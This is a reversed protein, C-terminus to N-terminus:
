KKGGLRCKECYAYVDTKIWSDNRCAPCKEINDHLLGADFFGTGQVLKGVTIRKSKQYELAPQIEVLENFNRLKLVDIMDYQGLTLYEALESWSVFRAGYFLAYLWDKLNFVDIPMWEQPTIKEGKANYVEANNTFIAMPHLKENLGKLGQREAANKHHEAIPHVIFFTDLLTNMLELYNTKYVRESQEFRGTDLANEVHELVHKLSAAFRPADEKYLQELKPYNNLDIAIKNDTLSM